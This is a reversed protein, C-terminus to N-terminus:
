VPYLDTSLYKLGSDCIVTVILDGKRAKRALKLAAAVNAAGSFGGMIGEKAALDRATRYAEQDTVTLYGDVVDEDYIGPRQAYGGGQIVHSTTKVKKGALFPTGAPEVTYTKIKPNRAKM